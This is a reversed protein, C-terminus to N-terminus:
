LFSMPLYCMNVRFCMSFSTGPDMRVQCTHWSDCTQNELHLIYEPRNAWVFGKLQDMEVKCLKSPFTFSITFALNEPPWQQTCLALEMFDRSLVCLRQGRGGIVMASLPGAKRLLFRRIPAWTLPVARYIGAGYLASLFSSIPLSHAVQLLVM